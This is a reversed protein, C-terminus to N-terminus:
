EHPVVVLMPRKLDQSLLEVVWAAAPLPLREVSGLEREVKRYEVSDRLRRSLDPLTEKLAVLTSDIRRPSLWLM